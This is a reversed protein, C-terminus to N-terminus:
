ARGGFGALECIVRAVAETLGFRAGLLAVALDTAPSESTLYFPAACAEMGVKGGSGLAMPAAAENDPTM